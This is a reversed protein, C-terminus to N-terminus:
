LLFIDHIFKYNSFYHIYSSALGTSGLQDDWILVFFFFYFFLIWWQYYSNGTYELVGVDKLIFLPSIFVWVLIFFSFISRFFVPISLLIICKTSIFLMRIKCTVFCCVFVYPSIITGYLQIFTHSFFNLFHFNNM